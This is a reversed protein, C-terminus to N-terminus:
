KLKEKSEGNNGKEIYILLIKLVMFSLKKEVININKSLIINYREFRVM